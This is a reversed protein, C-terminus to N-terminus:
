VTITSRDSQVLIEVIQPALREATMAGFSMVAALEEASRPKTRAIAELDRDSCLQMLLIDARKRRTTAGSGSHGGSGSRRMKRPLPVHRHLPWPSM